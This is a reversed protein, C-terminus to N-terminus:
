FFGFLKRIMRPIFPFVIFLILLTSAISMYWWAWKPVQYEIELTESVRLEQNIKSVSDRQSIVKDLLRSSIRLENGLTEIELTDKQIVFVKKFQVPNGKDDCLEKIKISETILPAKITETKIFLSDTKYVESTVFVKKPKCSSLCIILLLIRLLPNM